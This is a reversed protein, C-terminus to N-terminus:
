SLQKDKKNWDNYQGIDFVNQAYYYNVIDARNNAKAENYL